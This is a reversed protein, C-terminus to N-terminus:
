PLEKPFGADILIWNVAELLTPAVFWVDPVAGNHHQIQAEGHGTKVLIGKAGVAKALAVDAFKDGVVYSRSLDLPLESAAQRIM